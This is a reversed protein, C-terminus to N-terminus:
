PKQFFVGSMPHCAKAIFPLFRIELYLKMYMLCRFQRFMIKYKEKLLISYTNEMTEAAIAIHVKNLCFGYFFFSFM